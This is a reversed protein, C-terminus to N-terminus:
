AAHYRHNGTYGRVRRAVFSGAWLGFYVSFREAPDEIGATLERARAFAATTEPASYGRAHLMAQGYSTQLKLRRQRSAAANKVEDTEALAALLTQAEEIEPFEPTPSFGELAPALVAHADAARNTSQYLKALSLAARLEFSKAQQQQAIAIAALFAEEAPATKAPDRKLLIEGRIRHLLADTWREGTEGALALAEDIRTLAGEASEGEAEIEALLGRVLPGYLQAGQESFAALGARMDALAGTRDGLRSRAWGRYTTGLASYMPM